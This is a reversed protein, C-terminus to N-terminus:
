FLRCYFQQSGQPWCKVWTKKIKTEQEQKQQRVRGRSVSRNETHEMVKTKIENWGHINIHIHPSCSCKQILKILLPPQQNNWSRSCGVEEVPHLQPHQLYFVNLSSTCISKKEKFSSVLPCAGNHSIFGCVEATINYGTSHRASATM